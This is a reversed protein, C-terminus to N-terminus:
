QPRDIEKEKPVYHRVSGNKEVVTLFVMAGIKRAFVSVLKRVATITQGEKGILFKIDYDNVRIALHISGNEERTPTIVVESPVNCLPKITQLTYDVLEQEM